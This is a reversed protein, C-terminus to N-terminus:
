HYNSIRVKALANAQEDLDEECLSSLLIEWIALDSLSYTQEECVESVVLGEHEAECVVLGENESLTTNNANKLTVSSKTPKMSKKLSKKIV